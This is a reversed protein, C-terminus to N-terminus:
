NIAIIQSRDNDSADPRASMVLQAKGQRKAQYMAADARECLSQETDSPIFVAAGISPTVVAEGQGMAVPLSVRDLIRQGIRFVEQPHGAGELIVTFEDGALRCVCDTNRVCQQLRAAVEQLLHDGSAHGWRDNVAKFGDLDIFLVALTQPSRRARAMAQRLRESFARRNPLGTLTDHRAQEALERQQAKLVSIDSFVRIHQTIGQQPNRLTSVSLWIDLSRGDQRLQQSEGVWRQGRVLAQSVGQLHSERLPPMGLLEAFQGMVEQPSLGTMSLFAPNVRVVRDLADTIVIAEGTEDIVRSALRLQEAAERQETVDIAISLIHDLEGDIRHVPTKILNVIRDGQATHFVVDEYVQTADTQVVHEDQEDARQAVEAPLVEHPQRGLAQETPLNMTQAAVQNWVVYQGRNHPRASRAYAAMPLSNVLTRYFVEQEHLAEMSAHMATTDRTLVVVGDPLRIMQHHLWTARHTDHEAMHAHEDEQRLGSHWCQDLREQFSEPWGTPLVDFLLRGTLAGDPGAYLAHAAANAEAIEYGMFRGMMDARRRLVLAADGHGDLLMSWREANLDAHQRSSRSRGPRFWLHAAGAALCAAGMLEAHSQGSSSLVYGASILTCAVVASALPRVQRLITPTGMRVASVTSFM